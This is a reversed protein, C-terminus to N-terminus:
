EYSERSFCSKCPEYNFIIGSKLGCRYGNLTILNGDIIGKYKDNWIDSLSQKKINGISFDGNWQSCCPYVNGQWDILLRRWPMLCNKRKLGEPKKIAKTRWTAPAIKLECRAPLIAQFRSIIPLSARKVRAQVGVRLNPFDRTLDCAKRLNAMVLDFNGGVRIAEYEQKNTADISFTLSTLGATIANKIREWAVNGNTNLMIDVYGSQKAYNIVGPLDKYLLSEGRWNLKVSKAKREGQKIVDIAMEFPM